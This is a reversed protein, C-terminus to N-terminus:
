WTMRTFEYNIKFVIVYNKIEFEWNIYNEKSTWLSICHTMLMIVHSIVIWTFWFIFINKWNSIM